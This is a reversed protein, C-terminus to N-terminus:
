NDSIYIRVDSKSKYYGQLVQNMFYLGSMRTGSLFSLMIVQMTIDTSTLPCHCRDMMCHSDSRSLRCGDKSEKVM